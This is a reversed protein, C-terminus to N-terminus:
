EPSINMAAEPIWKCAYSKQVRSSNYLNSSKGERIYVTCGRNLSKEAPCLSPINQIVQASPETEKNSAIYPLRM